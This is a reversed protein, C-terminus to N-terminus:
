SLMEGEAGPQGAKPCTRRQSSAVRIVGSGSVTEIPIEIYLLGGEVMLPYQPLHQNDAKPPGAIPNGEADFAGNHCPCFYRNNQSEWHVRCGLHPCTSSLAIFDDATTVGGQTAEGVRKISVSLGDPTIYGFTGESKIADTPAVFVWATSEGAPYLYRGAMVAFTGYSGVLGGVMAASSATALFGRRYVNTDASSQRSAPVHQRASETPDTESM